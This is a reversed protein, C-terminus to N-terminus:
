GVDVSHRKVCVLNGTSVSAKGEGPPPLSVGGTSIVGCTSSYVCLFECVTSILSAKM